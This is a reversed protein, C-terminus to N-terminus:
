TIILTLVPNNKPINPNLACYSIRSLPCIILIM